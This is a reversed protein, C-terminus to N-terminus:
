LYQAVTNGFDRGLGKAEGVASIGVSIAIPPLMDHLPTVALGSGQGLQHGATTGAPVITICEGLRIMTLMTRYDDVIHFRVIGYADIIRTTLAAHHTLVPNDFLVFRYGALFETLRVHSAEPLYTGEPHILVMEETGIFQTTFPYEPEASYFLALHLQNLDLLDIITTAPRVTVKLDDIQFRTRAARVVAQVSREPLWSDVGILVKSPHQVVEAFSRPHLMAGSNLVKSADALDRVLQAAYPLFYTGQRTLITGTWDRELLPFGLNDELRRLRQSMAPQTLYLSAAAKSISRHKAVALFSRITEIDM